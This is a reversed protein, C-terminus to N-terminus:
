LHSQFALPLKLMRGSFDRKDLDVLKNPQHEIKWLAVFLILSEEM